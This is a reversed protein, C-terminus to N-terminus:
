TRKFNFKNDIKETVNILFGKMKAPVAVIEDAYVATYYDPKLSKIKNLVTYINVWKGNPQLFIRADDIFIIKKGNLSFIAELEKLVPCEPLGEFAKKDGADKRWEPGCHADLYFINYSKSNTKINLLENYSNGNVFTINSFNQSNNKAIRHLKKDLEITIVQDFIKAAQRAIKGKYTGTEVFLSIDHEKKLARYLNETRPNFNAM